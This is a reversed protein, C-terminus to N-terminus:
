SLVIRFLNRRVNGKKQTFFFTHVPKLVNACTRNFFHPKCKHMVNLAKEPLQFFAHIFSLGYYLPVLAHHEESLKYVFEWDMAKFKKIFHALVMIHVFRKFQHQCTSHLIYYLFQVEPRPIQFSIGKWEANTTKEFFYKTQLYRKKLFRPSSMLEWHLQVPFADKQTPDNLLTLAGRIEYDQAESGEMIDPRFGLDKLIISAKKSDAMTLLLDMDGIHRWSYEPYILHGWFPGKYPIFCINEKNFLDFIKRTQKEYNKERIINNLIVNQFISRLEECIFENQHSISAALPLLKHWALRECIWEAMDPEVAQFHDEFHILGTLCDILVDEKNM